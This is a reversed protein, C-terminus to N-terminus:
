HSAQSAPNLTDGQCTLASFTDKLSDDKLGRAVSQGSSM